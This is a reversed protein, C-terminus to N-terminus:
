KGAAWFRLMAATLCGKGARDFAVFMPSTNVELFKLAGTEACAKYDAAAFDLGIRDTLKKLKRTLAVPLKGMPEVSCGEDTRYDISQSGIAFGFFEDGVRFVRVDPSVLREQLIAPAPTAGARVTIDAAIDSFIQTYEGGCVPKAIWDGPRKGVAARLKKADSTILTRPVEMGVEIAMRLIAPKLVNAEGHRNLMRIGQHAELWGAMAAYWAHARFATEGRPDAFQNFVDYRVFAADAAFPKGRLRFEDTQIDWHIAPHTDTGFLVPTVQVGAARAAESLHVLNPDREGGTILLRM